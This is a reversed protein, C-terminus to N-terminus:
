YHFSDARESVLEFSRQLVADRVAESPFVNNQTLAEILFPTNEKSFVPFSKKSEITGLSDGYLTNYSTHGLSQALSNFLLFHKLKIQHERAADKICYVFLKFNKMDSSSVRIPTARMTDGILRDGTRIYSTRM